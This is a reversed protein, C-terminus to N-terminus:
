SRWGRAGRSCCAVDGRRRAGSIHASSSRSPWRPASPSRSSCSSGPTSRWALASPARRRGSPATAAQVARFALDPRAADLAEWAADEAPAGSRRSRAPRRPRTRRAARRGPDAPLTAAAGAGAGARVGARARARLRAGARARARSRSPSSRRSPSPNRSWCALEPEPEPEISRSRSPSRRDAEIEPEPEPEPEVQPEPEPEARRRGRDRAGARAGGGAGARAGVPLAGQPGNAIAYELEIVARAAPLQLELLGLSSREALFKGADVEAGAAARVGAYRWWANLLSRVKKPDDAGDISRIIEDVLASDDDSRQSPLGM